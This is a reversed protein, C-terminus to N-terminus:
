PLLGFVDVGTQTGIYVHGNVVVPVAYRGTTHIIDRATGNPQAQTSNYLETALNTADYAHLIPGNNATTDLAWLIGNSTGNASIVPTAGASGLTTQSASQIAGSADFVKFSKLADGIGGYYFLQNFYAPASSAGSPLANNLTAPNNNSTGDYEGLTSGVANMEYINGDKGAGVLSPAYVNTSTQIDPILMMGGSGQDQYNASGPVGDLPEFYDFVSMAGNSTEIKVYGNGYDGNVPRRHADQTLTTDFTGKSTALFVDGDSDAAPGGGSMWIAGGSGNPTLNLVSQQQLTAESYAMVWSSYDFSTQRCPAAWTLYLTSNSLLLAAREVYKGPVFSNTGGESTVGSGPYTAAIEVPSSSLEAGTALDLGHLRQHYNGGSDKSMAVFFLAGGAGDPNDPNNPNNPNNSPYNRDIVPTATIGVNPSVESCGQDGQYDAATENAALASRQWLVAGTDADYAYVTDNETAVYLVNHTQAGITLGSIFLPQADVAADTTYSNQKGFTASAVNALTLSTEAPNLGTRGADYHWTPVDFAHAPPTVVQLTLPTANFVSLFEGLVTVTTSGPQANGSAALVVTASAGQNVTITSPTPIVGAPLNLLSLTIPGTFGASGETSIIIEQFSGVPVNVTTPSVTLTIQAPTIPPGVTLMVPVTHALSGSVGTITVTSTGQPATESAVFVVPQSQGIRLKSTNPIAIVGAPLNSVTFVVTGSFGGVGSLSLRVLNSQSGEAVTMSPTATLAFDASATVSLELIATHKTGGATGVFNIAVPASSSAATAAATLTVVVPTGPTIATVAPSVTVGTPLGTVAVSVAGSLDTATSTLTVQGSTGPALTLAGPTVALTFSQSGGPPPPSAATVSVAVMTSARLSGSVGEISINSTSVAATSAASVTFTTSTGPAITASSPSMTVGAPLGSVSVTVAGNFNNASSPTVMITQSQGQVVAVSSNATLTFSGSQTSGCGAFLTLLPACLLCLVILRLSRM